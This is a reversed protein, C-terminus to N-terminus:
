AQSLRIHKSATEFRAASLNQTDDSTAVTEWPPSSTPDVAPKPQVEVRSSATLKLSNHPQYISFNGVVNGFPAFRKSSEPPMPSMALEHSVCRQYSLDRPHLRVTNFCEPVTAGYKYMTTHTITRNCIIRRKLPECEELTPM